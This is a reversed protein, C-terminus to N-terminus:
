INLFSRPVLSYILSFEFKPLFHSLNWILACFLEYSSKIQSIQHGTCSVPLNTNYGPSEQIIWSPLTPMYAYLKISQPVGGKSKSSKTLKDKDPYSHPLLSLKWIMSIWLSANRINKPQKQKVILITGSSQQALQQTFSTLYQMYMHSGM